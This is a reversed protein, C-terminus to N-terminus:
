PVYERWVTKTVPKGRKVVKVEVPHRIHLDRAHGSRKALFIFQNAFQPADFAKSLPVKRKSEMTKNFRKQIRKEFDALSEGSLPFTNQRALQLAKSETMGYVRFAM